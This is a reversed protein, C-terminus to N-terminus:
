PGMEFPLVSFILSAVITSVVDTVGAFGADRFNNCGTTSWLSGLLVLVILNRRVMTKKM